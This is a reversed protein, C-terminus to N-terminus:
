PRSVGSCSWWGRFHLRWHYHRTMPTNMRYYRIGQSPRGRASGDVMTSMCKALGAPNVAIEESEFRRPGSTKGSPDAAPPPPPSGVPGAIHTGCLALRRLTVM